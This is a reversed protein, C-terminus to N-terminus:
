REPRSVVITRAAVDAAGHPLRFRCPDSAGNLCIALGSARYRLVIRRRGPDEWQAVTLANGAEDLWEVDDDTLITTGHLDTEGARLAALAFVYRELEKSRGDWDIWSIANDQAYANNNGRQSRGFEDGASLM